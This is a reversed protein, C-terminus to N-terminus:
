TQPPRGTVESNSPAVEWRAPQRKFVIRGEKKLAQMRRDILRWEKDDGLQNERGLENAAMDLLPGSYIPHHGPRKAIHQVIADDLEKYGTGM